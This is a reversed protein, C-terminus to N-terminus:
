SNQEIKSISIHKSMVTFSAYYHMSMLYADNQQIFFAHLKQAMLVVDFMIAFIAVFKHWQANKM